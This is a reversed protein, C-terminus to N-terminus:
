RRSHKNERWRLTDSVDRSACRLVKVWSHGVNVQGLWRVLGNSGTVGDGVCFKKRVDNWVGEAVRNMGFM